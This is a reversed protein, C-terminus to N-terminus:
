LRVRMGDESVGAAPGAAPLEAETRATHRVARVLTTLAAPSTSPPWTTGGLIRKLIGELAGASRSLEPLRYLGSSGAMRHVLHHLLELRSRDWGGAALAAATEEMTRLKEALEGLYARRLAEFERRHAERRGELDHDWFAELQAPLGAPDFPKAIVGTCGLSEYGPTDQPRVAGSILVIPTGATADIRRLSRLVAFGDVGPMMIDLLIMDPRFCEACDAADAAVGCTHVTYGGLTTLALSVVALLDPDDDIVLIRKLPRHSLRERREAAAM